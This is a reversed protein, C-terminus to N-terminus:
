KGKLCGFQGLQQAELRLEGQKTGRVLFVVSRPAPFPNKFGKWRPEWFRTFHVFLFKSSKVSLSM